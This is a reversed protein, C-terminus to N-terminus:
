LKLDLKEKLYLLKPFIENCKPDEPLRISWKLQGNEELPIFMWQSQFTCHKMGTYGITLSRNEDKFFLRAYQIRDPTFGIKEFNGLEKKEDFYKQQMNMYNIANAEALSDQQATASVIEANMKNLSNTAYLFSAPFFVIALLVYLILCKKMWSASAYTEGTSKKTYKGKSIKILDLFAFAWIILAPISIIFLTTKSITNEFIFSSASVISGLVFPLNTFIFYLIGRLWRRSMFCHIGLEGFLVTMWYISTGTLQKSDQPTGTEQTEETSPGPNPFDCWLCHLMDDEYERHCKPCIM